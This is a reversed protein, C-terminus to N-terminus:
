PRMSEAGERQRVAFEEEPSYVLTKRGYAAFYVVALAYWIAVGIIGKQYLPDTFQFFITILAIIVTIVAGPVGFPSRYPREINPFARRLQIFTLGQLLYSFMAGFVAMNLLVGGIFSGAEEGGQTFWVVLMVLFGVLSGAALATNPTKHKGHTVSLFHPFYGARSLSYIQRGFAFIIAHFSAILGAVAFLSLVKAWGAGYIARFGDLIPEGSSGLKFAGDPIAPNIILVLFGTAILTFMGLMIGRPMDRRPDVSEEAALPLQEIALFLWVAFPMSALVGYIGFPLFPGGGDPLEIAEGTAPDVGVNMAYRGFDIFPIASAFFLVLVGLAILTVIVTVTFSLEVGRVNLGVFILYGILWWVPQFSQPTEFIGTLYAGIFFVVVAPTLVYEINEAVGTIFGGWPGFATRAFSYAGGTHPLAPSMEAISYTLGLYMLTILITGVFMGGWGGVAFGLNWGSFDGSIVAGVGLAWLSFVGAHRRLQRIDFYEQGPLHYIVGGEHEKNENAM